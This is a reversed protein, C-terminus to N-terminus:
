CKTQSILKNFDTKVNFIEVTSMSFFLFTASAIFFNHLGPHFSIYNLIQPFFQPPKAKRDTWVSQPHEGTNQVEAESVKKAKEGMSRKDIRSCEKMVDKCQAM